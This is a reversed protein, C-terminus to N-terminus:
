LGKWHKEEMALFHQREAEDMTDTKIDANLELGTLSERLANIMYNKINEPIEAFPLLFRFTVDSGKVNIDKVMGLEILSCDIAPHKVNEMALRVDESTIDKDM